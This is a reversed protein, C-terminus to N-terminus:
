ARRALLWVLYLGGLLSTVLGVPTRLGVDLAQSLLDALVLLTAGMFFSPLVVVGGRRTLRRVIQPAALAVFAIPGTAATAVGTLAVALLLATFRQREVGIGLAGAADDGMEILTLRRAALMLMPVLVVVAATVSLAHPWGRGTLSGATWQQVTTADDISARVLLFSTVAGLIAGVGIGVLVLRLGGAVGDKRALLYVVLATAVGGAVAAIATPLVGGDFLVIQVVAGTAAGTTFGIVDPSGLANRSLSQFVAGAVGLSGGVMFATLLRPLRRGRVSRVAAEEGTGGLAQLVEAPSLALTGHLMTLVGAALAVVGLAAGVVLLRPTVRVSFAGARLVRDHTLAPLTSM